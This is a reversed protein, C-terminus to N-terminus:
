MYRDFITPNMYLMASYLEISCTHLTKTKSNKSQKPYVNYTHIYVPYMYKTTIPAPKFMYM